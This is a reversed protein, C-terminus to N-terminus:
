TEHKKLALLYVINHPPRCSAATHSSYLLCDLQTNVTSHTKTSCRNLVTKLLRSYKPFFLFFLRRNQVFSVASIHQWGAWPRFAGGAGVIFWIIYCYCAAARQSLNLYSVVGCEREWEWTPICSFASCIFHLVRPQSPYWLNIHRCIPVGVRHTVSWLLAADFTHVCVSVHSASHIARMELGAIWILSSGSCSRPSFYWSDTAEAATYICSQHLSFNKMKIVM